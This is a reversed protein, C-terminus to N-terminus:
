IKKTKCIKFLWFLSVLTSVLAGVLIPVATEMKFSRFGRATPGDASSTLAFSTTITDGFICFVTEMLMFFSFDGADGLNWTIGGECHITRPWVMERALARRM